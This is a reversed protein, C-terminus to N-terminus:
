RLDGHLHTVQALASDATFRMTLRMSFMYTHSKRSNLVLEEIGESHFLAVSGVVVKLVAWLCLYNLSFNSTLPVFESSLHDYIADDHQGTREAHEILVNGLVQLCM